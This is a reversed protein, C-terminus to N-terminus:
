KFVVQLVCLGFKGLQSADDCGVLREECLFNLFVDSIKLPGFVQERLLVVLFEFCQRSLPGFSLLLGDDVVRCLEDSLAVGQYCTETGAVAQRISVGRERDFLGVSEHTGLLLEHGLVIVTHRLALRLDLHLM